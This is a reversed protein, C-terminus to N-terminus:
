CIYVPGCFTATSEVIGKQFDQGIEVFKQVMNVLYSNQVECAWVVLDKMEDHM